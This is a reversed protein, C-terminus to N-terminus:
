NSWEWLKLGCAPRSSLSANEQAMRRFVKMMPCSYKSAIQMAKKSRKKSIFAYFSSPKM